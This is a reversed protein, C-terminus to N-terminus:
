MAIPLAVFERLHLIQDDYWAPIGGDKKSRSNDSEAWGQCRKVVEM